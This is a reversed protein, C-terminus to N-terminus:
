SGLEKVCQRETSFSHLWSQLQWTNAALGHQKSAQMGCLLRVAARDCEPVQLLNDNQGKPLHILVSLCGCSGDAVQHSLSLHWSPGGVVSGALLHTQLM